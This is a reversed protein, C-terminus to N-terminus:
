FRLFTERSKRPVEQRQQQRAHARLERREEEKAAVRAEKLRLRESEAASADRDAAEGRATLFEAAARGCSCVRSAALVLNSALTLAFEICSGNEATERPM